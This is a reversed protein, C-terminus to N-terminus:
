KFDIKEIDEWLIYKPDKEGGIFVLVGDNNESVDRSEGLMLETGNKLVINSYDYNRPKISKIQGMPIIYEVDDDKGQLMEFSYEEDLDYTIEGQFTEGDVTTVTGSLKTINKFASYNTNASNPADM